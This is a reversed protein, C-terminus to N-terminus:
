AGSPDVCDMVIKSAKGPVGAMSAQSLELIPVNSSSIPFTTDFRKFTNLNYSHVKATGPAIMRPRCIGEDVAFVGIMSSLNGCNGSTDLTDDRIGVQIFTYEADIGAEKLKASPSGVVCIKSLSSVGGGMGNVAM